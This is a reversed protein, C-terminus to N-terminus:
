QRRRRGRHDRWLGIGARRAEREMLTALKADQGLIPEAVGALAGDEFLSATASIPTSAPADAGGRRHLLHLRGLGARLAGGNARMTATLERAGPTLTIHEDLVDSCRAAPLGNLLASASACRAGRFRLEGRM